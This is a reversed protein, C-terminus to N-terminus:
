LFMLYIQIFRYKMNIHENMQILSSLSFTSNHQDEMTNQVADDVFANWGVVGVVGGM